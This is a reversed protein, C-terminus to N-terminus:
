YIAVYRLDKAEAKLYECPNAPSTSLTTVEKMTGSCMNEQVKTIENLTGPIASTTRAVFNAKGPREMVSMFVIGSGYGNGRPLIAFGYDAQVLAAGINGAPIIADKQPDMPLSAVTDQSKLKPLLLQAGGATTTGDVPYEGTEQKYAAVATAIQQIAAVRSTDRASAQASLLRPLLAAALIGIIVVVILMEVLTFGKKFNKM